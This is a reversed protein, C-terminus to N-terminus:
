PSSEECEEGVGACPGEWLLCDDVLKELMLGVTQLEEHVARVHTGEVSHLGEPTSQELTPGGHPWLDQWCVQELRPEERWPDQWSGAGACTEWPTAVGEPM